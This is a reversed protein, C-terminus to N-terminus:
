EVISTFRNISLQEDNFIARGIVACHINTKCLRLYTEYTICGDIWVRYKSNNALKIAFEEMHPLYLQNPDFPDTTSILFDNSTEIIQDLNERNLDNLNLNVGTKINAKKFENIVKLPNDLHSVQVFVCECDIEKLDNIYDLPNLVEIHITKEKSKSYDCIRKCMKMGFTIGLLAVGDEIDIHINDYYKDIFDIEKAINLIDSSAISPSVHM